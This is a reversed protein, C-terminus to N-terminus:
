ASHEGLPDGSVIPEPQLLARLEALVVRIRILQEETDKEAQELAKIRSQIRNEM